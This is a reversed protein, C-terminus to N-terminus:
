RSAMEESLTTSRWRGGPRVVRHIGAYLGARDRINMAVHQTWAHDFAGDAFPLDLADAQQCTVAGTLGARGVLTQAVGVFARSLDIGTVRCGYEAALYRAPGGLGCGVDLVTAGRSPDLAAALEQTAALGRIHFQDFSATDSWSVAGAGLGAHRLAAEVRGALNSPEYHGPPM